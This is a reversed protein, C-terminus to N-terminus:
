TTPPAVNKVSSVAEQKVGKVGDIAATPPTNEAALTVHTGVRIVTVEKARKVAESTSKTAPHHEAARHGHEARVEGARRTGSAGGPFSLDAAHARRFAAM